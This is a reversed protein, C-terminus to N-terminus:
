FLALQSAHYEPPDAKIQETFLQRTLLPNAALDRVLRFKVEMCCQTLKKKLVPDRQKKYALLNARSGPFVMMKKGASEGKRALHRYIMASSFVHFSFSPQNEGEEFWFLPDQGAVRYDLRRGISMLLGRIEQVDRRRAEPKEAERLLWRHREPDVLDAYSELCNLVDREKPTFLGPFAQFSVSKAQESDITGESILFRAIQKELRDIVPPQTENPEALWYQGAEVSSTEEGVQVLLGPEKFVSELLKQTESTSQNRNQLFIEIALENKHALRTTMAAHVQQYSAPEGKQNLFLRAANKAQSLAQEPKVSKPATHQNQWACQALQDDESQAFETLNFESINAALLTALLLMPENEAVLGWINHVPEALTSLTKFVSELASTHWNWDYRQRALVQRIPLVAEQGWLWGTWLASLSWFAQNPRPIVTLTGTLNSPFESATLDKLRGNFCYIAPKNQNSSQSTPWDHVPIPEQLVRWTEIASVLAQWINRERFTSPIVLQKPRERPSPHAWLTNAQDAVSLILATLLDRRRKTQDLSDLKNIISQLIILPRSPYVNLTQEVNSRLPDHLEAIRNLARARHLGEPPLAPISELAEPTLAQEGLSGCFPCNVEAAFPQAAGKQWYFAAAEVEQRCEMCQVHYFGRIYQEMRSDGKPATALDQLAAILEDENPASALIKILFAHIPNNATILVNIGAAAAEIACLPSFGFPDLVWAGETLNDRCWKKIIGAPLPPLFRGLPLEPPPGTGSIYPVNM